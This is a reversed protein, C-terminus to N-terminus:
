KTLSATVSTVFQAKAQAFWSCVKSQWLEPLKVTVINISNISKDSISNNVNSVPSEFAAGSGLIGPLPDAFAALPGPALASNGPVSPLPRGAGCGASIKRSPTDM